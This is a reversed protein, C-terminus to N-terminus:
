YYRDNWEILLTCDQGTYKMNNVGNILKLFDGSFNAIEDVGNNQVVQTDCNIVLAENLNVTGAWGFQEAVAATENEFAISTITNGKDATFTVTPLALASGAVTINYSTPSASIIKSNSDGTDAIWFPTDAIFVVRFKYMTLAAVDEHNISQLQASVYRDDWIRLNQKGDNIQRLFADKLTRLNEATTGVINGDITVVLPNLFAAEINAGHKLPIIQQKIRSNNKIKFVETYESIDLSGFKILINAM